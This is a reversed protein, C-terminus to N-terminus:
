QRNFLAQSTQFFHVAGRTTWRLTITVRVEEAAINEFQIERKFNSAVWGSTATHGYTGTSTQQTLNSCLNPPSTTVGANGCNVASRLPVDISCVKGFYCPDSAQGSLGALWSVPTGDLSELANEDRINKIYEMAEQTLYFAIIEDKVLTSSKLGGQVATFTALISLSLISIAVLTEVMTFGYKHKTSKIKM